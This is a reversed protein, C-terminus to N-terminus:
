GGAKRSATDYAETFYALFVDLMGNEYPHTKADWREVYTEWARAKKSSVLGGTTRAEIAEPSIDELLRALAPQIAAFVATQHRKIDNFGEEFSSTASLFGQSRSVFMTELADSATPKFKMPNNNSGGIMTRSGSKVFQKAAARANLLAMLQETAIRLCRGIEEGLQVPDTRNLSGAPLGAGLALAQLFVALGSDGHGQPLPSFPASLSGDKPSPTGTPFAPPVQPRVEPAARDTGPGPMPPLRVPPPEPNSIFRDPFDRPLLVDPRSVPPLPGPATSRSFTDWIDDYTDNVIGRPEFSASGSEILVRIIYPGVGLRDNHQLRYPSAVREKQGNLFTGNSSVDKLWYAGNEWIIELHRRSVTQTRDPLVWDMFNERGIEFGKGTVSHMIPGGDPLYAVNEIRMTLKM